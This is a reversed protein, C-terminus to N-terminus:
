LRQWHYPRLRVMTSHFDSHRIAGLCVGGGTEISGNHFPFWQAQYFSRWLQQLDWDFWQPISIQHSFRGSAPAKVFTEISGNHFPFWVELSPDYIGGNQDWDFWQPISILGSTFSPSMGNLSDWDFWQPISIPIKTVKTLHWLFM